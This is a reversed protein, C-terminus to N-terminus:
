CKKGFYFLGATGLVYLGMGVYIYTVHDDLPFGIAHHVIHPSFALALGLFSVVAAAYYYGKM